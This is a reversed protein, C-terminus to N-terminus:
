IPKKMVNGEIHAFMPVRYHKEEEDTVFLQYKKTYIANFIKM